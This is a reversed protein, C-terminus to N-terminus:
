RDGDDYYIIDEKDLEIKEISVIKDYDEIYRNIFKEKAKEENESIVIATGSACMGYTEIKYINM